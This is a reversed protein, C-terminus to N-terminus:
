RAAADLPTASGGDLPTATPVGKLAKKDKPTEPRLLGQDRAAEAVAQFDDIHPEVFRTIRYVDLGLTPRGLDRQPEFDLFARRMEAVLKKPTEPAACLVDNPIQGTIALAQLRASPIGLRSANNKAGSYIAGADCRGDIIDKMVRTHRGSFRISSFLRDPDLRQRKLYLRPLLYGSTSGKDVYCFRTGRLDALSRVPSDERRVILGQYTRAGEYTLTALVRIRPEVERVRLFPLPSIIAFDIDSGLLRTRLLEYDKPVVLEVRRDLRRELYRLFAKMEARMVKAPFAPTLALKVAPGAPRRTALMRYAVGAGAGGLIALVALIVSLRVRKRKSPPRQVRGSSMATMKHLSTPESTQVSPVSMQDDSVTAALRAMSAGSEVERAAAEIHHLGMPVSDSQHSPPELETVELDFHSEGALAAGAAGGGRLDDCEYAVYEALTEPSTPRGLASLAARVAQGMERATRYRAERRKQMAGMIVDAIEAPLYPNFDRPDPVPEETIAKLTMLETSRQYLRRAAVLEFFVIGLSFIDTRRDLADGRCQEPSMYPFKGKISGTRTKVDSDSAKAIGFDLLKVVGQENVILNHPSVDRHVVGLLVNSEDRLEHAAHLGDCAQAVMEAAVAYPLPTNSDRARRNILGVGPGRVYEMVIFYEGAHHGVEFIRVVNPHDLLAALRAEEMFMKVFQQEEALHPLIRKIVVLSDYGPSSFPRALYIEAMGGKAIRSLLQYNGLSKPRSSFSM